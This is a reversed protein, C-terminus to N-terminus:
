QRAISADPGIKFGGAIGLTRWAVHKMVAVDAARAVRWWQLLEGFDGAFGRQMLEESVMSCSGATGSDLLTQSAMHDCYLYTARLDDLSVDAMHPRAINTQAVIGFTTLLLAAAVAAALTSAVRPTRCAM